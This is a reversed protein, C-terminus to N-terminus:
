KGRSKEWGTLLKLAGIFVGTGYVAHFPAMAPRRHKLADRIGTALRRPPFYSVLCKPGYKLAISKGAWRGAGYVEGLTELNYHRCIADGVIMARKGLKPCLTQDDLFGIDDYGGVELFRDRRVARYIISGLRQEEEGLVFRRDAPLNSFLQLCVSWVNDPNAVFEQGHSTGLAKGSLLPKMMRSVYERDFVMDGDLFFLYEGEGEKGGRNWATATGAHNQRLLKVRPFKGIEEITGDTSGDDVVLIEISPYSQAELSRLCEGIHREENFVAIVITVLPSASM